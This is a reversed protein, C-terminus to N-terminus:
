FNYQNQLKDLAIWFGTGNDKHGQWIEPIFSADPCGKKLIKNLNTFNVEGADIQMGEGNVGVADGLHLHATYPSVKKAFEYFDIKFNNCTLFSHSIDFCIRLDLKKCWYEIEDAHVFINQFRQGGFHWPFPAMTQPILEVDSLDLRNLSNEFNSYLEEKLDESIAKDMSWGGINAVILPKNTKPFYKNLRRTLDIVRQTEKLSIELYSDDTSTLDMLHSGEFLEPAHVVFESEYPKDFYKDLDFDM